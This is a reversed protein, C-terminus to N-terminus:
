RRGRSWPTPTATAMPKHEVIGFGRACCYSSDPSSFSGDILPVEAALVIPNRKIVIEDIEERLAAALRGGGALWTRAAGNEAKPERVQAVPVSGIM